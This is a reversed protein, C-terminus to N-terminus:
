NRLKGVFSCSQLVEDYYYQTETKRDYDTVDCVEDLYSKLCVDIAGKMTPAKIYAQEGDEVVMYINM